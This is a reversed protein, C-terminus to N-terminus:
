KQHFRSGNMQLAGGVPSVPSELSELPAPITGTTKPLPSAADLPHLPMLSSGQAPPWHAPVQLMPLPHLLLCSTGPGTVASGLKGVPFTHIIICFIYKKKGDCLVSVKGKIDGPLM